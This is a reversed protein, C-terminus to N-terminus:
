QSTYAWGSQKEGNEEAIVPLTASYYTSSKQQYVGNSTKFESCSRMMGADSRNSKVIRKDLSKAIREGELLLEVAATEDFDALQDDLGDVEEQGCDNADALGQWEDAAGAEALDVAEACLQDICQPRLDNTSVSAHRGDSLHATISMGRSDAAEHREVKGDGVRTSWERSEGINVSATAGRAECAKLARDILPMHSSQQTQTNM